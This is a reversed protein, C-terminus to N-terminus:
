SSISSAKRCTKCGSKTDGAISRRCHIDVFAFGGQPVMQHTGRELQFLFAWAETYKKTGVGYFGDGPPRATGCKTTEQQITDGDLSCVNM